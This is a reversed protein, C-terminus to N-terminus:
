KLSIMEKTGYTLVIEKKGDTNVEDMRFTELKDVNEPHLKRFKDDEEQTILIVETKLRPYKLQVEQKDRKEVKSKQYLQPEQSPGPIFDKFVLVYEELGEENRPVYALRVVDSQIRRRFKGLRGVKM